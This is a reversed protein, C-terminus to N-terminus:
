QRWGVPKTLAVDQYVGANRRICSPHDDHCSWSTRHNRNVRRPRGAAAAPDTRHRSNAHGKAAGRLRSQTQPNGLGEIFLNSDRWVEDISVLAFANVREKVVARGADPIRAIRRALAAVFEDLEAAPLARNIWGYREALDADYDDASLMVELARARGMLRVLHQAGGAGPIM